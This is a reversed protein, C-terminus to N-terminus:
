EGKIEKNIEESRTSLFTVKDGIIKPAEEDEYQEIRGKIGILDGNKCYEMTNKAVNGRLIAKIYDTEYVEEDNKFPRPTALTIQIENENINKIENLRGVIVINNLM